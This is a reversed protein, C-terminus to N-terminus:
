YGNIVGANKIVELVEQGVQEDLGEVISGESMADGFTQGKDRLIENFIRAEKKTYAEYVKEFLNADM